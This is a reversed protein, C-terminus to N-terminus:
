GELAKAIEQWDVAAGAGWLIEARSGMRTALSGAIAQTIIGDTVALTMLSQVNPDGPYVKGVAGFTQLMLFYHDKVATDTLARIRPLAYALMSVFVPDDLAISDRVVQGAGPGGPANLLDAMDAPSKGAYGLGKPDGVIEAKLAAPDM